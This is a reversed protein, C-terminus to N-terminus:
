APWTAETVEGGVVDVELTVDDTGKLLLRYRGEVVEPYVLTPIERGDPLPRRVVAVHPRHGHGHGHGHGHDDDHDHNDGKGWTALDVDSPVIDVEVGVMEVPMTVIVAGVDGGIDLVVPGSGADPNEPSDPRREETM